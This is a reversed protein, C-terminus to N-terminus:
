IMHCSDVTDIIAIVRCGAYQCACDMPESVVREAHPIQFRQIPLKCVKTAPMVGALIRRTLRKMSAFRCLGIVKASRALAAPILWYWKRRLKLAVVPKVGNRYRCALRMSAARKISDVVSALTEVIAMSHPNALWLWKLVHKLAAM